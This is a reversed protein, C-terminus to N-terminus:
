QILPAVSVVVWVYWVINVANPITRGTKMSWETRFGTRTQYYALAIILLGAIAHLYNQIPRGSSKGPKFWHVAAGFASQAFYLVFIAVGWKQPTLTDTRYIIFSNMFRVMHDDSLHMGGTM